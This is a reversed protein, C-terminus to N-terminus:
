WQRGALMTLRIFAIDDGDKLDIGADLEMAEEERIFVKYLGDEFALLAADVAEAEDAQRDDYRTGFGVKGEAGRAEIEELTLFPILPQDEARENYLRVNDAVIERILERLNTPSSTLEYAKKTLHPKRKGISKVTVYINM